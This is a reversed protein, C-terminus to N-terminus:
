KWLTYICVVCADNTLRNVIMTDQYVASHGTYKGIHGLNAINDKYEEGGEKKQM